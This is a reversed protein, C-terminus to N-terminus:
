YKIGKSEQFKVENSSQRQGGGGGGGGGLGRRRGIGADEEGWGRRGLGRRGGIRETGWNGGEGEKVDIEM